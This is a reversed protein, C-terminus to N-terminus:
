QKKEEEVSILPINQNLILQNLKPVETQILNRLAGLEKDILATINQKVQMMGETPRYYGNAASSGVASLKNNLRIPYNLPDQGSQNKTQYLAEEIKTMKKTLAKASDLLSKYKEADLKATFGNIDSRIKRIQKIAKHTETLKDRVELLFDLQAQLDAPSATLRPDKLIEFEQTQTEKGMTLRVKYTGPVVKPGQTGGAWLILNDFREADEYRMNWVFRNSGTKIKFEGWNPNKKKDVKTAFKRILKDNKDLFELTAVQNTDIKDRLSFHVMVGGPPNQGMPMSRPLDFSFGGLTNYTPRPKFLHTKANRVQENLQHLVTLDDLIWFARGQTAVVLDNDKITLDTIPVIPLNLQFAQWNAGDDFSIYMGYETGAYLISNSQPDKRIARTFHLAPIGNTIKTWTKGYDTTKYLYPQFDDLKYRTGAIYCVGKQTPDPEVCNIMTWEPMGKPTINEWNKGGDKTIHVLGDDSGVWIVDKEVKSEGFAFITCYYEVGTNDKTIPGGSPQMRTSDNRTLDPSIATWSQGENTSKFLINSGVYITNADHPSFAIPANWQFRYKFDKAGYGMPNDPYVDVSREQNTSHDLRTLYGGYSGGYVINPNTPNPAMHASEGGASPEWDRNGIAFDDSRSRVRLASNDQQGGLVRYPFDNDTVVRYFQATPQNDLSSWSQAGNLSVAAGGDDALVMQQNNHPNIWLDHHDGHMTPINEWTKGGDKSRHFQVNAVYVWDPNQTDAYIRTYYWARQRLKREENIKAWTEGGDESRYVGGEQAEIIAWVRDQKVPSVTVGIIGLTGKPLGKSKKTLEVWTDGGDTSKWLGSGEGGSELSHPTRIVRWTSAYLVRPNNPDFTLDVAGAQKNAFLIREWNKGGDKSRYVGREENPGFLHGLVAAYVLDPNTPHIRIRTIHRSDKLGTHQWTKGADVSKWMGFGESVNGRVTKEGEGVYIVNNDSESVAVAGISGGFFGDSINQWSAGADTTRWVGGGTAGFYYLNPKGAVGTCAASRGGRFPGINRYKLANFLSTDYKVIPSVTQNKPKQAIALASFGLLFSWLLYTKLAYFNQKM